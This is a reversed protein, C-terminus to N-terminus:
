VANKRRESSFSGLPAGETKQASLQSSVEWNCYATDRCAPGAFPAAATPCLTTCSHRAWHCKLNGKEQLSRTPSDGIPTQTLSVRTNTAQRGMKTKWALPRIPTPCRRAGVLLARVLKPSLSVRTFKESTPSTKRTCCTMHDNSLGWHGNDCAPGVVGIRHQASMTCHKNSDRSAHM